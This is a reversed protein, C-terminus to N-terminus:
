PLSSSSSSLKTTKDLVEGARNGCAHIICGAADNRIKNFNQSKCVCKLDRPSCSTKRKISGELCPIACPPIDKLTQAQVAAAALLALLIFKM